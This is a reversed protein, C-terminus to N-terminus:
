ESFAFLGEKKLFRACWMKLKWILISVKACYVIKAKVPFPILVEPLNYGGSYKLLGVFSKEYNDHDYRKKSGVLHIQKRKIFETLEEETLRFDAEAVVCQEAQQRGLVIKHLAIGEGSMIEMWDIPNLGARVVNKHSKFLVGRFHTNETPAFVMSPKAWRWLVIRKDSLGHVVWISLPKEARFEKTEAYGARAGACLGM